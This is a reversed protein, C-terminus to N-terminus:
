KLAGGNENFEKMSAQCMDEEKLYDDVSFNKRTDEKIYSLLAMFCKIIEYENVSINATLLELKEYERNHEMSYQELEKIASLYNAFQMDAHEIFKTIIYNLFVSYAKFHWYNNAEVNFFYLANISEESLGTVDKVDQVKHKRCEYEGMLYGIDCDFFNCIEIATGLPLTLEGKEWKSITQRSTYLIDEMEDLSLKKEKRMQQLRKGVEIKNIM